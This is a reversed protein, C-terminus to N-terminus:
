KLGIWVRYGIWWPVAEPMTSAAERLRDLGVDSESAGAELLTRMSGESLAFGILRDGNGEEISHLFVERVERFVGSEEFWTISPGPSQSADLGLRTRLERKRALVLDFAAAAEWVPTVFATYNYACFVGGGRLLRAIEPFLDDPRMWQLSQAATVLDASASALATAYSSTEVYRVNPAETAQEAFARMVQNPEVGVVEDAADAWFRTSLGTGAGLDVVLKPPAIHALRPLLELLVSPPRPRYQDYDAAFGARDYGSRALRASLEEDM